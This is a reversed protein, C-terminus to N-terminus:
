VRQFTNCFRFLIGFKWFFVWLKIQEESAQIVNDIDDPQGCVFIIVENSGTGEICSVTKDFKDSPIVAAEVKAENIMQKGIGEELADNAIEISGDMEEQTVAACTETEPM